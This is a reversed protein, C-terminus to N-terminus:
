FSSVTQSDIVQSDMLLTVTLISNVDVEAVLQLNPSHPPVRPLNLKAVLKGEDTDDASFQCVNYM